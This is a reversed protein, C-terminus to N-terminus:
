WPAIANIRLVGKHRLTCMLGRVGHKSAGYLSSGQTDIYAMISSMVILCRDFSEPPQKNFYFGALKATRIVGFLNVDLVNFNPEQPDDQNLGKQFQTPFESVRTVFVLRSSRGRRLNWRECHCHRNWTQSFTRNCIQLCRSPGGM